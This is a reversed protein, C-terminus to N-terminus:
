APPPPIRLTATEDGLADRVAREVEFGHASSVAYVTVAVTRPGQPDVEPDRGAAARPHLLVTHVIKRSVEAHSRSDTWAVEFRHPLPGVRQSRRHVIGRVVKSHPVLLRGRADDLSVNLRGIEAVVGEHGDIVVVDGLRIRGGARLLVGLVYDRLADYGAFLAIAAAIVLAVGLSMADALLTSVVVALVILAAALEFPAARLRRAWTPRRLAVLLVLLLAVIILLLEPSM